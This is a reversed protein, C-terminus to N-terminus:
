PHRATQSGLTKIERPHPIPCRCLVQTYEIIITSQHFYSCVSCVSVCLCVFVSLVCLCTSAQVVVTCVPRVQLRDKRSLVGGTKGLSRAGGGAMSAGTGSVTSDCVLDPEKRPDGGVHHSRSAGAQPMRNGVWFIEFCPNRIPHPLVREPAQWLSLKNSSLQGRSSATACLACRREWTTGM